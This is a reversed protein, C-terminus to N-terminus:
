DGRLNKIFSTNFFFKKLPSPEKFEQEFVLDELWHVDFIREDLFNEIDNQGPPNYIVIDIGFQNLLLFLAADSRVFTGNMANNYLIVKPVEQSYDFKQMVRIMEAPIQMGQTFLYIKLAEETERQISKLRPRTCSNKIATAIGKQLGHPLHGYKWYNAEMMKLVDLEGNKSLASRYHFRFDNNISRTIPLQKILLSNELKSLLHIREWYEKRNSSVGHIKAFITPIKVVGAKVEFNPRIMAKEKGLIFLEDYTTKLTVSSPTYDRLQWPKYLGSGEHNLISEIEQSARYAVTAKRSRKETPFLEPDQNEPFQHVFTLEKGHDMISLPDLGSPNFVICDCGLKILYYLFYQHSKKADGYWIFKPMNTETSAQKMVENLHNNSWKILDVLIRQLENSKLGNAEKASFQQITSIMAERIKRYIAPTSSKLLLQEGDLFAVLRNISLQQERNINLVKQIAKFQENPITKDLHDQSILQIGLIENHVYDFLRNYYEDEDLPIGLFRAAVQGIHVMGQEKKYQPRDPIRQNLIPLWTEYSLPLIHLMMQHVTQNLIIVERLDTIIMINAFIVSNSKIFFSKRIIM